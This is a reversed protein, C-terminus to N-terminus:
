NAAYSTVGSPLKTVKKVRRCRAALYKQKWKRFMRPRAQIMAKLREDSTMAITEAFRCDPNKIDRNIKYVLRFMSCAFADFEKTKSM